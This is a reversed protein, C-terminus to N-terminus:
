TVYKSFPNRNDRGHSYVRTQQKEDLVFLLFLVPESIFHFSSSSGDIQIWEVLHCVCDIVNEFLTKNQKRM